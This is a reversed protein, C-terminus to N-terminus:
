KAEKEARELLFKKLYQALDLAEEYAAQLGDISAEELSIGYLKFGKADREHLDAIVLETIRSTM